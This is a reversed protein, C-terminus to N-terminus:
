QYVEYHPAEQLRHRNLFEWVEQNIKPARTYYWHDHGKIEVLEVPIGKAGLADRTARVAPLPFFTDKTGVM